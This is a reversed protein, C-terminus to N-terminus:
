VRGKAVEKYREVDLTGSTVDVGKPKVGLVIAADEENGILVDVYEMLDTMVRNAKEPTCLKKRYNLDCSIMLGHKKVASCAQKTVEAVNDGLAPATGSFHFWHKGEFIRDWDIDGPQL